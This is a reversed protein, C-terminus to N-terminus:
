GELDVENHKECHAKWEEDTMMETASSCILSHHTMKMEIPNYVVTHTVSEVRCNCVRLHNLVDTMRRDHQDDSSSVTICHSVHKEQKTM